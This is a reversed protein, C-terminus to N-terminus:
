DEKGGAWGQDLAPGRQAGSRAECWEVAAKLTTAIIEGTAPDRYEFEGTESPTITVPVGSVWFMPRAPPDDFELNLWMEEFDGAMAKADDM